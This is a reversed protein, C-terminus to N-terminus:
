GSTPPPPPATSSPPPPPTSSSPPPPPPPPGGAPPQGGGNGGGSLRDAADAFSTGEEQMTRFGGFALVAASILGIWAGIKVTHDIGSSLGSVGLDPPSIVRYLVLLTSLGALVTVVVSFPVPVDQSRDSLKLWLMAATALVTVFLVIDIFSFSGWANEAHEVELGFGGAKLGFWNFVFMDLLLVIAAVGAIKEGTQLRDLDM